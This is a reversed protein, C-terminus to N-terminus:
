RARWPNVYTWARQPLKWRSFTRAVDIFTKRAERIRPDDGETTKEWLENFAEGVPQADLELWAALDAVRGEADPRSPDGPALANLMRLASLAEAYKERRVDNRSMVRTLLGGLIGGLLGVILPVVVGSTLSAVM